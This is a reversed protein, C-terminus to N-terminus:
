LFSPQLSQLFIIIIDILSIMIGIIIIVIITIMIIYSIDIIATLQYLYSLSYSQSMSLSLARSLSLSITYTDSSSIRHALSTLTISIYPSLILSLSVVLSFPHLHPHIDSLYFSITYYMDICVCVTIM